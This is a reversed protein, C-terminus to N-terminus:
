RRFPLTQALTGHLADDLPPEPRRTNLALTRGVHQSVRKGGV